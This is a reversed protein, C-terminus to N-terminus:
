FLKQIDSKLVNLASNLTLHDTNAMRNFIAKSLEISADGPQVEAAATNILKVVDEKATKVMGWSEKSIYLQQSVNHEFEERITQLMKTQLEIVSQGPKQLRFIMSQPNIRELFLVLREYAQLRIPTVLKKDEQRLQAKLNEVEAELATKEADRQRDFITKLTIWQAVVFVVFIVAIFIYTGITM